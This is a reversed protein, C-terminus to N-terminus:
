ETWPGRKVGHHYSGQFWPEGNSYFFEWPGHPRGHYYSGRSYLKGTIYCEEWLGHRKGNEDVPNVRGEM